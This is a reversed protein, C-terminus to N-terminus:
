APGTREEWTGDARRVAASKLRFADWPEWPYTDVSVQEVDLEPEEELSM